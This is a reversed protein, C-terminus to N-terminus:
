MLFRLFDDEDDEDEDERDEDELEKEEDDDGFDVVNSEERKSILNDADLGVEKLFGKYSLASFFNIMTQVDELNISRPVKKIVDMDESWIGGLVSLKKNVIMINPAYKFNLNMDNVIFNYKGDEDKNFLISAFKCTGMRDISFLLSNTAWFNSDAFTTTKLIDKVNGVQDRPVKLRKELGTLFEDLKEPLIGSIIQISSKGEFYDYGKSEIIKKVTESKSSKFLGMFKGFADVIKDSNKLLIGATMPDIFVLKNNFSSGAERQLTQYAIMDFFNLLKKGEEVDPYKEIHIYDGDDDIEARIFTESIAFATFIEVYIMNIKKQKIDNQAVLTVYNVTNSTKRNFLYKYIRWDINEVNSLAILDNKISAEYSDPLEIQDIFHQAFKEIAATRIGTLRKVLTSSQLSDMGQKILKYVLTNKTVSKKLEEVTQIKNGIDQIFEKLNSKAVVASAILFLLIFQKLM